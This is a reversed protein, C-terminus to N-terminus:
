SLERVVISRANTAIDGASPMPPSAGVHLQRTSTPPLWSTSASAFRTLTM